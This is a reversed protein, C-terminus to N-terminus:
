KTYEITKQKWMSQATIVQSRFTNKANYYSTLTIHHLIFDIQISPLTKMKNVRNNKIEGKKTRHNSTIQIHEKCQLLLYTHYLTTYFIHSNFPFNENNKNKQKWM